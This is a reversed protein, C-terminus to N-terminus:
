TTGPTFWKSWTSGTQQAIRAEYTDHAKSLRALEDPSFQLMQSFVQSLLTKTDGNLGCDM